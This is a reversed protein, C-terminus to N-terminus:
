VSYKLNANLLGFMLAPIRLTQDLENVGRVLFSESGFFRLGEAVANQDSDFVGILKEGKVLVFKGSHVKAWEAQNAKFFELETQLPSMIAQWVCCVGMLCRTLTMTKSIKYLNKLMSPLKQRNCESSVRNLPSSAACHPTPTLRAVPVFSQCDSASAVIRHRKVRFGIAAGRKIGGGWRFDVRSLPKQSELDLRSRLWAKSEAYDESHRQWFRFTQEIALPDDPDLSICM